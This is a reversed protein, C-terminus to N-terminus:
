GQSTPENLSCTKRTSLCSSSCPNVLVRGARTHCAPLLARALSLRTSRARRTTLDCAPGSAAAVRVGTWRTGPTRIATTKANAGDSAVVTGASLSSAHWVSSCREPSFLWRPRSCLGLRRVRVRPAPPLPGGGRGRTAPGRWARPSPRPSRPCLPLLGTVAPAHHGGPPPLRVLLAHCRRDHEGRGVLAGQVDYRKRRELCVGDVHGCIRARQASAGRGGAPRGHRWSM